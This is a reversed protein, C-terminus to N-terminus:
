PANSRQQEETTIHEEKNLSSDRTETRLKDFRLSIEEDTLTAGFSIGLDVGHVKQLCYLIDTRLAKDKMHSFCYIWVDINESKCHNILQNCWDERNGEAVAKRHDKVLDDIAKELLNDTMASLEDATKGMQDAERALKEILRVWEDPVKTVQGGTRLTKKTIVTSPDAAQNMRDTENMMYGLLLYVCALGFFVFALVGSRRRPLRAWAEPPPLASRFGKFRGLSRLTLLVCVYAYFASLVFYSIMSVWAWTGFGPDGWLLAVPIAIMDLLCGTVSMHPKDKLHAHGMYKLLECAWWGLAVYFPIPAIGALVSIGLRELLINILILGVGVFMLIRRKLSFAERYNASPSVAPQNPCERNEPPKNANDIM